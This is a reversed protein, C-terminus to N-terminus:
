KQRPEGANLPVRYQARKGQPDETELVFERAGRPIALQMQFSGDSSAATKRGGSRVTNGPQTVGRVLYVTGAVYEVAFDSASVSRNGERQSVFFKQPESWESTQGTAGEARVRWFYVGPRLEGVTLEEGALKGREVVKGAAVFFPSTAVEVRYAGPFNPASQQWRLTAGAKNNAGVYLTELDKPSSTQPANLLHERRAVQGAQNIYLYEGGRVITQQGDRTSTEVSGTSIRIDETNDDRVGFSAGTQPALRNHTQRTEVVNSAGAAQQQTKVNIQGRDVAVRVNPREGAGIGSSDRVTVVSNPRVVLTSGDALQIRARADAQTQVVDGPYLPMQQLAALTQRTRARVVRVEGDLSIFHAGAPESAETVMGRLAGGYYSTYFSTGAALLCLGLGIAALYVARKPILYWDFQFRNSKASM